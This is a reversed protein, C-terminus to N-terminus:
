RDAPLHNGFVSTALAANSNVSPKRSLVKVASGQAKSVIERTFGRIEAMFEPRQFEGAEMRKLKFEWEGTLEPSTLAAVGMHRLLNVLALGKSTASM